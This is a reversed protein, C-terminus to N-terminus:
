KEDNQCVNSYPVIRIVLPGDKAINQRIFYCIKTGFVGLNELWIDPGLFAITSYDAM